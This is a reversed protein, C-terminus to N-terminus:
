PFALATFQSHNSSLPLVWMSAHPPPMPYDTTGSPFRPFPIVNSIYICLIDLLFYICFSLNHAHSM